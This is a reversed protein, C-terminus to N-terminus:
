LRLGSFLIRENYKSNKTSLVSSSESSYLGRATQATLQCFHKWGEHLLIENKQKDNWSM